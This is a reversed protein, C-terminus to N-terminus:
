WKICRYATLRKEANERMSEILDDMRTEPTIDAYEVTTDGEEIQKVATDFDFGELQGTSKKSFLFEAAALDEAICQLEPKFSDADLIGCEDMVHNEAKKIVYGLLWEDAPAFTYGFAALLEKVDELM